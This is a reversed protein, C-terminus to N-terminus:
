DPKEKIHVDLRSYPIEIGEERFRRILRKRIESRAYAADRFSACQFSLTYVLADKGFGPELRLVPPPDTLVIQSEESFRYIEEMVVNEFKELDTSYSVPIEISTRAQEAPKAYNVIISQSLKENPIVILDNSLTTIVTTRWNIDTVTGKRRDDIEIFDGVEIRKELLIYIGSFINALTDKLALGIALGGIGFTTILPAVPVGLHSLMVILGTIYVVTKIIIFTLTAGAVPLKKAEFFNKIVSVVLNAVFVTVSIILIVYILKVGISHFKQPLQSFEISLHISLILGWLISPLRINKVIIDDLHTGTRNAAKEILSLVVFRIILFGSFSLVGILVPQIHEPIAM